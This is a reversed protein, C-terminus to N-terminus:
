FSNKREPTEITTPTYYQSSDQTDSIIKGGIVDGEQYVGDISESSYDDRNEIRLANYEFENM